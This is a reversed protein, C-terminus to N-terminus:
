ICASSTATGISMNFSASSSCVSVHQSQQVNVSMCNVSYGGDVEDPDPSFHPSLRYSSAFRTEVDDDSSHVMVPTCCPNPTKSTQVLAAHADEDDISNDTIGYLEGEVKSPDEGADILQHQESQSKTLLKAQTRLSMLPM